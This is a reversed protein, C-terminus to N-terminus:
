SESIATKESLQLPAIARIVATSTRILRSLWNKLRDGEGETTTHEQFFRTSADATQFFLNGM